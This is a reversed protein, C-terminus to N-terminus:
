KGVFSVSGAGVHFENMLPELMVGFSYGLGQINFFLLIPLFFDPKDM